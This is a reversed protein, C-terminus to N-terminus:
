STAKRKVTEVDTRVNSVSNQMPAPAQAVQKKGVLAAIGAAALLVAAVILAALWADLLLALALVATAVLAGGGYLALIGAAGFLGAGRVAHQVTQRMEARGLEMETRVLSSLQESARGILEGTSAGQPSAEDRGDRASPSFASSGSAPTPDAM